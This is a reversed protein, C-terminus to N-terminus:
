NSGSSPPHTTVAIGNIGKSLVGCSKSRHCVDRSPASTPKGLVKRSSRKWEQRMLDLLETRLEEGHHVRQGRGLTEVAAKICPFRAKYDDTGTAGFYRFDDSLLVQARSYKPYKGLDHAVDDPGHHLAGKRWVFRGRRYRYISDGRSMFRRKKYYDGNSAKTTVRAIYILRNDKSLSNAAFGFILDGQEAKVRMMPKCIALSLLGSQVCPAAGNDNTLKYFYIRNM